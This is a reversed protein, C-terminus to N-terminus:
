KGLGNYFDTARQIILAENASNFTLSVGYYIENTEYLKKNSLSEMFPPYKNNHMLLMLVTLIDHDKKQLNYTDILLPIMSTANIDVIVYKYNLGVRKARGISETMLAIVSDKNVKFFAEQRNGWAHEPFLSPLQGFIKKEEDVVAENVDCNQAFSEAYIMNYTFKERFSLSRYLREPLSDTGADADPDDRHITKEKILQKVKALGYPPTTTYDRYEHYAKDQPGPRKEDDQALCHLCSGIIPLLLTLYKM